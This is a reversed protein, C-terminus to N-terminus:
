VRTSVYTHIEIPDWSYVDLFCSPTGPEWWAGRANYFKHDIKKPAVRGHNFDTGGLLVDVSGALDVHYKLVSWQMYVSDLLVRRKFVQDHTL